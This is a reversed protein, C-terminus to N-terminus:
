RGRRFVLRRRPLMRSCRSATPDNPHRPRVGAAAQAAQHSDLHLHCGDSSHLGGGFTWAAAFTRGRWGLAGRDLQFSTLIGLQHLRQSPVTAMRRPTRSRRTKEVLECMWDDMSRLRQALVAATNTAICHAAGSGAAELEDYKDRRLMLVQVDTTTKISASHPASRFFSMEGFIDGPGLEALVRQEDNAVTKTVICNGKVIVWLIQISLGERLIRDNPAYKHLEMRELLAIRDEASTREFIPFEALDAETLVETATM